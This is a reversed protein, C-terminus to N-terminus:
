EGYLPPDNHNTWRFNVPDTFTGPTKGRSQIVTATGNAHGVAYLYGAGTDKDIGLLLTGYQGCRSAILTEFGQWTAARVVKLVPRMPSTLPIHVTYLAGGRTTMLLTDYTSTRSLLTMAKVSGFGPYSASRFTNGSTITWRFLTGDNRLGYMRESATASESAAPRSNNLAVFADWGGGIRNLITEYPKDTGDFVPYTLRYLGTGLVVFGSMVNYGKAPLLSMDGNLKVQGPTFVGRGRISDHPRTIPSTAAFLQTRHHGAATVSGADIQCAAQATRSATDANAGTTSGWATPAAATSALVLVAVAQALKRRRAM